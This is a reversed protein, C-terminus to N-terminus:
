RSAIQVPTDGAVNRVFCSGGSHRLSSCLAVAENVSGFGKVSLRYFTGKSSAFRASMPTYSVLSHFKRAKINWAALVSKANSYAGLQVVATSKGRSMSAMRVPAGKKPASARRIEATKIPPASPTKASATATKAKAPKKPLNVFPMPEPAPAAAAFEVPPPAPAVAVPAPPAVAEAVQQPAPAPAPAPAAPAQAMRTDTKNLALRVPQGPDVAAPTVGILSAVATSQNGPTAMQMWQHIRADLQDGPVDQAAVAKANTWDGALAYALALNQRVRADANEGRAAAQLVDIAREPQGALAVALGYDAPDVVDRGAELYSLAEANKGQAIEVLALKLVVAPQNSYISLADKYAAEASKFRGGAFYASGLLARFGADNPTKEVAQEAFQIAAPVNNSNLAALARTALGVEGNAKGGFGATRVHSQPSACGATLSALAIFSLTSGFRIARAM